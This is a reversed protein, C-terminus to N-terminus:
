IVNVSLLNFVTKRVTKQFYPKVNWEHEAHQNFTEGLLNQM